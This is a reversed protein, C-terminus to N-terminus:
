IHLEADWEDTPLDGVFRFSWGAPVCRCHLHPILRDYFGKGRGLRKCTNHGTFSFATGPIIAFDIESPSLETASPGPEVIGKYGAIMSEPSYERLVLNDGCVAPLAIRKRGYWESILEETPIEGDISMYLLVTGAKIFDPDAEIRERFERFECEAQSPSFAAQRKKMENRLEAKTM